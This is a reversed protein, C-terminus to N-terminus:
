VLNHEAINDLVSLVTTSHGALSFRDPNQKIAPLGGSWSSWITSARDVRFSRSLFLSGLRMNLAMLSTEFTTKIDIM